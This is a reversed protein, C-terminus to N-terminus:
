LLKYNVWVMIIGQIFFVAATWAAWVSKEANRVLALIILEVILFVLVLALYTNKKNMKTKPENKQPEQRHQTKGAAWMMKCKQNM